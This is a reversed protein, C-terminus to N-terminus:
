EHTNEEHVKGTTIPMTELVTIRPVVKRRATLISVTLVNNFLNAIPNILTTFSPTAIALVNPVFNAGQIAWTARTERHPERWSKRWTPIMAVIGSIALFSMAIAPSNLIRWFVLAVMAGCFCIVDLSNIRHKQKNRITCYMVSICVLSMTIQPLAAAGGGNLWLILATLFTTILFVTWTALSPETKQQWADRVYPIYAIVTLITAISGAATQFLNM